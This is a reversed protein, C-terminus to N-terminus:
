DAVGVEKEKRAERALEAYRPLEEARALGLHALAEPTLSYRLRRKDSPDEEAEIVGRMLLTRLSATSNVGRIWDIDGRTAGARYAIVALTELSAKGLDRSLESERFKKVVAAAEPATRLEIAGDTEVLTIGRGKLATGFADLAIRVEQEKLGLFGAIEKKTLPGGSAFLLAEVAASPTLMAGMM